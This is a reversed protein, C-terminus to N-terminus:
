VSDFTEGRSRETEVRWNTVVLLARGMLNRNKVDRQTATQASAARLAVADAVVPRM